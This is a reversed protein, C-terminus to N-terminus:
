TAGDQSMANLVRHVRNLLEWKIRDENAELAWRYHYYEDRRNREPLGFEVNFEGMLVSFRGYWTSMKERYERKLAITKLVEEGLKRKLVFVPQTLAEQEVEALLKAREQETPQSPATEKELPPVDPSAPPKIKLPDYKQDLLLQTMIKSYAKLAAIRAAGKERSRYEDSYVIGNYVGELHAGQDLINLYKNFENETRAERWLVVQLLEKIFEAHVVQEKTPGNEANSIKPQPSPSLSPQPAVKSQQIGLSVLADKAIDCSSFLLLTASALFFRSFWELNPAM